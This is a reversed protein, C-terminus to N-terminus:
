VVCVENEPCAFVLAINGSEVRADVRSPGQLHDKFSLGAKVGILDAVWGSQLDM